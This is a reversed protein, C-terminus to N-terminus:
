KFSMMLHHSLVVTLLKQSLFEPSQSYSNRMLERTHSISDICLDYKSFWQYMSSNSYFSQVNKNAGTNM